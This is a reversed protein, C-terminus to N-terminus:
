PMAEDTGMAQRLHGNAKELLQRAEAADVKRHFSVIATKVEGDCNALLDTANQEDVGTLMGVIRRSRAVLKENSARLDVMLNGYTKGLRIMAATTLTNLVLKTATGAKMRTSGSVIEPGVVPCIMIDSVTELKSGANCALGVTTCGKAQAHALGGIVYPTRGSTAIGVVVDEENLAIEDLDRAGYEPFDEAGEISRVLAGYGGAILGVVMEPDTNFTPPCESADLVGLRGSTGAGMYILRGGDRFANVIADVAQAIPQSEKGVADAITQDERNMLQVVDLTSMQDVKESAPNRQETTLRDLVPQASPQTRFTELHCNSVVM